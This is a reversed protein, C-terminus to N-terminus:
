RNLIYIGVNLYLAFILWIVYPIQLYASLKNIKYFKVIMVIVFIMLLVIWLASILYLDFGFFLLSWISNIVLQVAYIIIANDKEKSKSNSVIYCSISMLIFLITWVIPFIIKPVNVPKSLEMYAEMNNMTLFSFFSGVVFTIILIILFRKVNFKM